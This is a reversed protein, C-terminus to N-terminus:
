SPSCPCATLYSFWQEIDHILGQQLMERLVTKPVSNATGMAKKATKWALEVCFEFRQITADRNLDTKPADLAIKLSKLANEFELLSAM